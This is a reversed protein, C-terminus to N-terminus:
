LRKKHTEGEGLMAELSRKTLYYGEGRGSNFVAVGATAAKSNYPAIAQGM